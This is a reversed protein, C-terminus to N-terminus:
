HTFFRNFPGNKGQFHITISSFDLVKRLLVTSFCAQTSNSSKKKKKARIQLAHTLDPAQSETSGRCDRTQACSQTLPQFTQPWIGWASIPCGACRAASLACLYFLLLFVPYLCKCIVYKTKQSFIQHASKYCCQFSHKITKSHSEGSVLEASSGM